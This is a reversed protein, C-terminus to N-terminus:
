DRRRKPAPRALILGVGVLLFGVAFGAYLLWEVRVGALTWGKGRSGFLLALCVVEILPGVMRLVLGTEQKM